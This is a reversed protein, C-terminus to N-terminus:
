LTLGNKISKISAGLTHVFVAMSFISDKYYTDLTLPLLDYLGLLFGGNNQRYMFLTSVCFFHFSGSYCNQPCKSIPPM